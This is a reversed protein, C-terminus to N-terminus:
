TNPKKGDESLPDRLTASVSYVGVAGVEEFGPSMSVTAKITTTGLQAGAFDVTVIINASTMEEVLAKPGRVIVQLAQTLLELEMDEPANKVIINTTTFTKKLLNPFRVTVTADQVGTLNTVGNPLTIPFSQRHGNNLEALDITGIVVEDLDELVKESGSIKLVPPDIEIASTKETAGGGEIVNVKLLIEKVRQVKMTLNVQAINTSVNSVDVPNGDSDCLTFRYTESFSEVRDTLDVDVRAEAIQNIIPEPGTITVKDHDIVKNETDAIYNPPVAGEYYIRIDIEKTIEREVVLTVYSPASNKKQVAGSLDGPFTVSYNLKNEGAETIQSLAAVVKINSNNLKNLDTRNGTVTLTVTPDRNETVMLGKETLLSQGELIVPVNYYTEESEPSVVTVVYLWLSFSVVVALLVMVLKNKM